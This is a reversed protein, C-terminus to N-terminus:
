ETGDGDLPPLTLVRRRTKCFAINSELYAAENIFVPYCEEEGEEDWAIVRGTDIDEFM